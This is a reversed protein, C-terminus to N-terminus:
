QTRQMKLHTVGDFPFSVIWTSIIAYSSGVLLVKSDFIRRKV